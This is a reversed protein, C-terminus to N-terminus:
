WITEDRKVVVVASFSAVAVVDKAEREGEGQLDIESVCYIWM